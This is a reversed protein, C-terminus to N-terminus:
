PALEYLRYFDTPEGGRFRFRDPSRYLLRYGPIGELVASDRSLLLEAATGKVPAGAPLGAAYWSARQIGFFARDVALYRCGYKGVLLRRLEDPSRYYFADFMELVRDRSPKSEWKPQFLIPHGTHALIATSTMFDAAIAEGEPVLEEIRTVLERLEARRAPPQYWAIPTSAIGEFTHAGQALVAAWAIAALARSRRKALAVVGAVPLLLGPLLITREVLWAVGVSVWALACLTTELDLAAGPAEARPARLIRVAAPVLALLGIGLFSVLAAPELSSFPGQWMLRVEAPLVRPDEPLVGLREVKAALLAFVHGYDGIGRGLLSAAGFSAAAALGLVVWAVLRPRRWHRWSATWTALVIQMPLSLAFGTSRLVPVACAFGLLTAPLIWSGRAAFPNRGSRLFVAFACAAELAFFFSTAHWTSVAVGLALGALLISVPTRARAARALLWLHLAFWPVSFDESMLVWGVTRYNAVTAVFCAAALMSLGVSRTLERALGYVGFVAASAWIGMAWVCFVHLPIGRGCLLYAWAVAFEQGVTLTAPVDVTGPHEIRPDARFDEPPAGHADAIRQTLYFLLGPDSKLLGRADVADFGEDRLATRIRLGAGLFCCFAAFAWGLARTRLPIQPGSRDDGAM